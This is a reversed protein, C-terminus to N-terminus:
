VASNGNAFLQDYLRASVARGISRGKSSKVDALLERAAGTGDRGAAVAAAIVAAYREFLARPTPYLEAIALAAESGM